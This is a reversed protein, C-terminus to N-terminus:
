LQHNPPCHRFQPDWTVTRTMTTSPLAGDPLDTPAVTPPRCGRDGEAPQALLAGGLEDAPFGGQGARARGAGPLPRHVVLVDGSM